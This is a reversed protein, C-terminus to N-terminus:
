SQKSINVDFVQMLIFIEFQMQNVKIKERKRAIYLTCSLNGEFARAGPQNGVEPGQNRMSPQQQPAHAIFRRLLGVEDREIGAFTSAAGVGSQEAEM